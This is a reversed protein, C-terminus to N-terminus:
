GTHEHQGASEPGISSSGGALYAKRYLELTRLQSEKLARGLLPADDPGLGALTGRATCGAAAGASDGSLGPVMPGSKVTGSTIHSTGDGLFTASDASTDPPLDPTEPLTHRAASSPQATSPPGRLLERLLRSAVFLLYHADCRAYRLHAEPLPRQRWDSLQFSKDLNVGCMAQLLSGLANSERQLVQCAKQTDFMNVIYIHFDRQLWKCDNQAGHLVKVITPDAFLPRLLDMHDHLAIADVVYDKHGTSLQLLCTYGLYSHQAHHEVDVALATLGELEAVVTESALPRAWGSGVARRWVRPLRWQIGGGTPYRMLPIRWCIASPPIIRISKSVVAMSGKHKRTLYPM